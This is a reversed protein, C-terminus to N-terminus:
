PSTVCVPSPFILHCALGAVAEAELLTVASESPRVRVRIADVGSSHDGLTTSAPV